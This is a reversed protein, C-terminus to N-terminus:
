LKLPVLTFKTFSQSKHETQKPPFCKAFLIKELFHSTIWHKNANSFLLDFSFWNQDVYFVVFILVPKGKGTKLIKKEESFWLLPIIRERERECEGIKGKDREMVGM